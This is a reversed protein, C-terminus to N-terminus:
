YLQDSGLKPTVKLLQKLDARDQSTLTQCVLVFITPVYCVVPANGSFDKLHSSTQGPRPLVKHLCASQLLVVDLTVLFALLYCLYLCLHSM